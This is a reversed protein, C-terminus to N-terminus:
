LITSLRPWRLKRCARISAEARSVRGKAREIFQLCSDLREGLPRVRFQEQAKKLSAELPEAEPSDHGLLELASELRSIRGAAEVAREQPHQVVRVEMWAKWLAEQLATKATSELRQASFAAEFRAVKTDKVVKSKSTPVSDKRLWRPQHNCAYEPSRTAEPFHFAHVM